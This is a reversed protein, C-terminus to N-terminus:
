RPPPSRGGAPSGTTVVGRSAGRAALLQGVSATIGLREAAEWCTLWVDVRGYRARTIAALAIQAQPCRQSWARLLRTV